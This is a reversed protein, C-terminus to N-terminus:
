VYGDLDLGDCLIKDVLAHRWLNTMRTVRAIEYIDYGSLVRAEKAQRKAIEVLGLHNVADNLFEQRFEYHTEHQFGGLRERRIAGDKELKQLAHKLTNVSTRQRRAWWTLSYTDDSVTWGDTTQALWLCVNVQTRNYEPKFGHAFAMALYRGDGHFSLKSV